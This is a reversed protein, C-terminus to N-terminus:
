LMARVLDRGIRTASELPTTVISARHAEMVTVFKLLLRGTDRLQFGLSRRM